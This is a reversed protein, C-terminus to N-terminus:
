SFRWPRQLQPPRRVEVDYEVYRTPWSEEFRGGLVHVEPPEEFVYIDEDPNHHLFGFYDASDQRPRGGPATSGRGVGATTDFVSSGAHSPPQHQQQPQQQQEQQQQQAASVVDAVSPSASADQETPSM